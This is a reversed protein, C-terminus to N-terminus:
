ESSGEWERKNQRREEGMVPIIKAGTKGLYTLQPHISRTTSSPSAYRIGLWTMRWRVCGCRTERYHDGAFM